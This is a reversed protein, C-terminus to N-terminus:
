QANVPPLLDYSPGRTGLVAGVAVAGVVMVGTTTLTAIFWPRRHLPRTPAAAVLLSSGDAAPAPTELALAEPRAATRTTTPLPAPPALAGPDPSPAELPAAVATSRLAQATSDATSRLAQATSNAAPQTNRATREPAVTVSPYPAPAAPALASQRLFRIRTEVTNRDPAAPLEALYLEYATISAETLGLRENCLGINYLLQPRRSLRYAENFAVLADALRGAMYHEQGDRFRARARQEDSSLEARPQPSPAGHAVGSLLLLALAARGVSRPLLGVIDLACARM